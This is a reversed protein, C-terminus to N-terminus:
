SGLTRGHMRMIRDQDPVAMMPMPVRSQIDPLTLDTDPNDYNVILQAEPNTVHDFAGIKVQNVLTPAGGSIGLRIKTYGTKNINSLNVLDFDRIVGNGISTLNTGAHANPDTIEATYDATSIAADALWDAVLSRDDATDDVFTIWARFYAATITATDPLSSTDFRYLSVYEAYNGGTFTKFVEQNTQTTSSFSTTSPPWVASGSRFARGDDSGVAIPFSVQTM